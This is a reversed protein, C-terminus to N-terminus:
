EGAELAKFLTQMIYSENEELVADITLNYRINYEPIEAIMGGMVDGLIKFTINKNKIEKNIEQNIFESYKNYDESNLYIRLETFDKGFNILELNLKNVIKSLYTKYNVTEKFDILKKKLNDMFIKFYHEKVNMIEKKVLVKTKSIQETKMMEAQKKAKEEIELAENDSIEKNKNFLAEYEMDLKKLDENYKKDMSQNLLKSFLLLKQEITVM